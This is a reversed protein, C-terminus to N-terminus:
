VMATQPAPEAFWSPAGDADRLAPSVTAAEVLWAGLPGRKNKLLDWIWRPRARGEAWSPASRARWRTEAAPSRVGEPAILIALPAPGKEAAAAGAEAALQLRRSQTLDAAQGAAGIVSPAAGSRLVEEMAWFVDKGSPADILILRDPDLFASLGYPDLRGERRPAEIWVVPGSRAGAMLAAFAAAADGAVEHARAEALAPPGAEIAGTAPAATREIASGNMALGNMALGHMALGNM